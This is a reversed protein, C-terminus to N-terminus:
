DSLTKITENYAESGKVFIERTEGLAGSIEIELIEKPLMKTIFPYWEIISVGEGYIFDDLEYDYGIGELRYVDMHYIPLVGQYIKLINFTPSNVTETVGLHRALFKTFTTKGSGLEGKLGIICGPFCAKRIKKAFQNMEELSHITLRQEM